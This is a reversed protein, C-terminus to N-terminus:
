KARSLAAYNFFGEPSMGTLAGNINTQHFVFGKYFGVTLNPALEVVKNIFEKGAALHDADSAVKMLLAVESAVAEPVSKNGNFFSNDMYINQAIQVADAAANQGSYLMPCKNQQFCEAIFAPPDLPRLEAKIGIEALQAQVIQAGLQFRVHTYLTTSFGDPFGAEALLAKAKAVDRSYFGAVDQNYFASTPLM